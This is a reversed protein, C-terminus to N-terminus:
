PRVDVESEPQHAFHPLWIKHTYQKKGFGPHGQIIFLGAFNMENRIQVVHHLKLNILRKLLILWMKVIGSVGRWHLLKVCICIRYMSSSASSRSIKLSAIAAM